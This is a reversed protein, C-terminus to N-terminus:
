YSITLILFIGSAAQFGAEPIKIEVNRKGPIEVPEYEHCGAKPGEKSFQCFHLCYWSLHKM